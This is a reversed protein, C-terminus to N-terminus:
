QPEVATCNFSVIVAVLHANSIETSFPGFHLEDSVTIDLAREIVQSTNRQDDNPMSHLLQQSFWARLSRSVISNGRATRNLLSILLTM